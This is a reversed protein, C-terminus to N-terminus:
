PGKMQKKRLTTISVFGYNKFKLEHAEQIENQKIQIMEEM